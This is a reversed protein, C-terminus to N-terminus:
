FIRILGWFASTYTLRTEIAYHSLDHLVFFEDTEMWFYSKGERKYSIIQKQGTRKKFIIDM